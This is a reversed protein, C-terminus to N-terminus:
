FSTLHKPLNKQDQLLPHSTPSGTAKFKNAGEAESISTTVRTILQIMSIGLAPFVLNIRLDGNSDQRCQCNYAQKMQHILQFTLM